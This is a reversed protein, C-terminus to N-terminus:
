TSFNHMIKNDQFGLIIGDSFQLDDGKAYQLIFIEKDEYIEKPYELIQNDENFYEELVM